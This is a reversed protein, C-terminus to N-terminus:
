IDTHRSFYEDSAVFGAIVNENSFGAEFAAVWGFIDGHSPARNLYNTYDSQIRLAEREPSAAFNYAISTRNAGAALAAVWSAEGKADPSRGLVNQYMADVWARDTGGSHLYYEPSGIFLSELLEDSLGGRMAATWGLLGPLDAQRGLYRQYDDQIIHSYYEDSHTLAMTLAARSVGSDLSQTWVSLAVPEPTRGLISQYAANVFLRNAADPGQSRSDLLGYIVLSNQTGVFVHGDAVTPVAFKVAKGLADAGSPAQDSNYLEHALNNADYARLENTTTDIMWVIGNATGNASITPTSGPYGFSDASVSSPTTTLHGNTLSFAQAHGGVIAYYLKGNFYAPASFITNYMKAVEQTIQDGSPNYGSLSDSGMLYVTGEKGGTILLNPQSASGAQPPLLVTGSSALDLDQDDLVEQNSPTFYSVVKLGYGNINQHTPSSDPDYAFQVISDGYDGNIPFGDANLDSDFTGNGTVVYMNGNGDVTISNGGQWIDGLDGNPTVNLAGWLSMTQANVALVWGHAPPIDPHSGFAMFINGNVETMGVRSFERLANFTITGNVSGMGTGNVTPGSIFTYKNSAKNYITDAITLPGGLNEGGTSLDLAHLKYVYHTGDARSEKTNALVYISHTNTDIVPTATIGMEPVLAPSGTDAAPVTSVGSSLFSDHWLVAGSDANIAYVSDHETAVYVVNHTGGAISVGSVYLPEAYVQGDVPTTAIKGFTASNVNAPTLTTEQANVGSSSQDYRYNLVNVSLLKRDELTEFSLRQAQRQRRYSDRSRFCNM